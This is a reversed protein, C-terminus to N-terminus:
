VLDELSPEPNSMLGADYASKKIKDILVQTMFPVLEEPSKDSQSAFELIAEFYTCGDELVMQEIRESFSQKSLFQNEDIM